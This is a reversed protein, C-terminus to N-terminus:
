WNLVTFVLRGGVEAQRVMSCGKATGSLINAGVQLEVVRAVVRLRSIGNQLTSFYGICGCEDGDVGAGARCDLVPRGNAPVGYAVGQRLVVAYVKEDGGAGSFPSERLFDGGTQWIIPGCDGPLGRQSHQGREIRTAGQYDSRVGARQVQRYGHACWAHGKVSRAVGHPEPRPPGGDPVACYGSGNGTTM